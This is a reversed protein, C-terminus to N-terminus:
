SRFLCENGYEDLNDRYCKIGDDGTSFNPTGGGRGRNPYDENGNVYNGNVDYSPEVEDDKTIRQRMRLETIWYYQDNFLNWSFGCITAQVVAFVITLAISWKNQTDYAYYAVNANLKFNDAPIATADTDKFM